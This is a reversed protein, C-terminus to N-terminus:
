PQTDQLFCQCKFQEQSVSCVLDRSEPPLEGPELYRCPTKVPEEFLDLVDHNLISELLEDQYKGQELHCLPNPDVKIEQHPKEKNKSLPTSGCSILLLSIATLSIKM